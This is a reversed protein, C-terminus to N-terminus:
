FLNSPYTYTFIFGLNTPEATVTYEIRLIIASRKEDNAFGLFRELVKELAEGDQHPIVVWRIQCKDKVKRNEFSPSNQYIVRDSSFSKASLIEFTGASVGAQPLLLMRCLPKETDSEARAIGSFVVVFVIFLLGFLRKM